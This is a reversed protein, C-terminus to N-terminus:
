LFGVPKSGPVEQVNLQQRVGLGGAGGFNIKKLRGRINCRAIYNWFFRM